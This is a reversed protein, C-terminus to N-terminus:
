RADECDHDGEQPGSFEGPTPCEAESELDGQSVPHSTLAATRSAVGPMDYVSKRASDKRRQMHASKSPNGSLLLPGQDELGDEEVKHAASPLGTSTGAVPVRSKVTYAHAEGKKTEPAHISTRSLLFNSISRKPLQKLRSESETPRASLTQMSSTTDFETATHHKSSSIGAGSRSGISMFRRLKTPKHQPHRVGADDHKLNRVPKSDGTGDLSM